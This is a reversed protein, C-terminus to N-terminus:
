ESVGDSNKESDNSLETTSGIQHTHKSVAPTGTVEIAESRGTQEERVCEWGCM